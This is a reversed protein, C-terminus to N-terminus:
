SLGLAVAIFLTIQKRKVLANINAM